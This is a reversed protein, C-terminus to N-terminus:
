KLFAINIHSCVQVYIECFSVYSHGSYLFLRVFGWLYWQNLNFFLSGWDWTNAFAYPAVVAEYVAPTLTFSPIAKSFYCNRIFTFMHEKTIVLKVRLNKGLLYLFMHEFVSGYNM